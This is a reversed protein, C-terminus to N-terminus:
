RSTGRLALQEIEDPKAYLDSLPYETLHRLNIFASHSRDTSPHRVLVMEFIDETYPRFEISELNPNNHFYAWDEEPGQYPLHAAKTTGITNCLTVHQRVINGARNSLPGPSKLQRKVLQQIYGKM